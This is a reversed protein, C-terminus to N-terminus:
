EGLIANKCVIASSVDKNCKLEFIKVSALLKDMNEMVSTTQEEGDPLYVQSFLKEWVKDSSVQKCSNEEARSLFCIAYLPTSKNVQLHEKGAWPTGYAYFVNNKNEVLPKDGNVVKVDDGFAVLWNNVHTSKGVGSRALFAIGKGDMEIVAGHLLFVNKTALLYTIKRYVALSEAIGYSFKVGDECYDKEDLIEQATCEITFDPIDDTVYDICLKEIYSYKNKILFSYGCLKIIM